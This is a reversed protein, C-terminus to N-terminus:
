NIIVNKEINRKFASSKRRMGGEKAEDESVSRNGLNLCM